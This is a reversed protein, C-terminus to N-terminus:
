AISRITEELANLLSDVEEESTYLGTSIRIARLAEENTYGMALLSPAAERSRSKCSSGTSLAFGKEEMGMMFFDLDDFPLLAFTTSFLRPSNEAVIESGLSKLKSEIRNRYHELRKNKTEMEFFQLRAAEALAQISPSNETGARHGNEQNGGLFVGGEKLKSPDLWLVSSGLGGGIKHGSFTFGDLISFPVPIKGFSQILDSYVSVQYKSCIESIKELPQIVGTENGAHLIFVPGPEEKLYSNLQTLSVLGSKDTDLITYPIGLSQFAGYMAAHEFPSLYARTKISQKVFYVLSHDAETGSSVFVFGKPDKGTLKGLLKRAEEIKGQRALSFRTPGSPNFFDEEYEELIKSLLGPIPPHTANYDFYKIKKM